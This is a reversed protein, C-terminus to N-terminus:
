PNVRTEASRDAAREAAGQELAAWKFWSRILLELLLLLLGLLLAMALNFFRYLHLWVAIAAWLGAMGAHRWITALPLSGAGQLYARRQQVLAAVPLVAGTAFLFVGLLLYLILIRDAAQMLEVPEAYGFAAQYQFEAFRPHDMPVLWTNNFLNHLWWVAVAMMGIGILLLLLV